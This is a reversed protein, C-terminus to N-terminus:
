KIILGRLTKHQARSFHACFSTEKDRVLELAALLAQNQECV